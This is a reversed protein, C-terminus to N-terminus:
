SLRRGRVRGRPGARTDTTWTRASCCTDGPSTTGSSRSRSTRSTPPSRSATGSVDICRDDIRLVGNPADDGDLFDSPDFDLLINTPTVDSPRHVVEAYRDFVRLPKTTTDGLSVALEELWENFEDFEVMGRDSIRSRSFGVYRNVYRPAAGEDTIQFTGTVTTAM